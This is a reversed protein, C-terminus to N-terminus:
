TDEMKITIEDTEFNLSGSPCIVWCRPVKCFSPKSCFGDTMFIAADFKSYNENIWTTPVNFNTGGRAVRDPILKEGKNWTFIKDEIVKSDFPIVIFETHESLNGLESFFMALSEDEVSGSQDICIAIRAMRKRKRGPHIYPYRKNIRKLTSSYEITCSNGIFNKLLDKWDVTAKISEFIKLQMENSVSGWHNSRNCMEASDQIIRRINNEIFEKEESSTGESSWGDHNDATGIINGNLLSEFVDRNKNIQEYYWDASEAKPLSIVFDRFQNIENLTKESYFHKYEEPIETWKGPILGGPPLRKEDILSNIAFDTAFNWARDLKGNSIKARSTTHNFIIHLFEHILLGQREQWTLNNFFEENYYLIMKGNQVSVGATELEETKFKNINASINGYFPEDISFKSLTKEFDYKNWREGKIDEDKKKM